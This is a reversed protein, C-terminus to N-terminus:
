SDASGGWIFLGYLMFSHFLWFFASIVGEVSIELGLRKLAFVIGCLRRCFTDCHEKWTLKADLGLFLSFTYTFHIKHKTIHFSCKKTKNENLVIGIKLKSSSCDPLVKSM